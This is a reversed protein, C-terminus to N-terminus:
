HCTESTGDFGGPLVNVSNNSQLPIVTNYATSDAVREREGLAAEDKM